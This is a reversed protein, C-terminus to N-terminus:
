AMSVKEYIFMMVWQCPKRFTGTAQMMPMSETKLNGKHDYIIFINILMKYRSWDITLTDTLVSEIRKSYEFTQRAAKYM